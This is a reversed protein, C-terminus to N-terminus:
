GPLWTLTERDQAAFATGIDSHVLAAGTGEFGTTTERIEGLILDEPRPTSDPHAVLARDFAIIRRDPFTERLHSYTRGNGLGLELVDGVPLRLVAAVHNLIDRQATLRRIFSDLRSMDKRKSSRRVLVAGTQKICFQG